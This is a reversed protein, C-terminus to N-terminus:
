KIIKRKKMYNYKKNKKIIEFLYIFNNNFSSIDNNYEKNTIYSIIARGIGNHCTILITKDKYNKYLYDIFNKVRKLFDKNKEGKKNEYIVFYYSKLSWNFEKKTKGTLEGLDKERLEETYILPKSKHYKYIEKITDKARKLDSSFFVDIKENKLTDAIKRAQEKGKETLKGPLHGQMIGKTNEVTEGHRTIILKM